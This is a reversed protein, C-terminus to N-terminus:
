ESFEVEVSLAVEDQNMASRQKPYGDRSWLCFCGGWDDADRSDDETNDFTEIDLLEAVEEQEMEERMDLEHEKYTRQHFEDEHILENNPMQDFLRHAIGADDCHTWYDYVFLGNRLDFDREMVFRDGVPEIRDRFAEQTEPNKLVETAYHEYDDVDWTMTYLNRDVTNKTIEIGCRVGADILQKITVDRDSYFTM